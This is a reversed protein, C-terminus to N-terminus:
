SFIDLISQDIITAGIPHYGPGGGWGQRHVGLSWADRGFCAWFCVPGLVCCPPEPAAFDRVQM